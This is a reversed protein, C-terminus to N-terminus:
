ARGRATIDSQILVCACFCIFDTDPAFETQRHQVRAPAAASAHRQRHLDHSEWDLGSASASAGNACCPSFASFTTPWKALMRVRCPGILTRSGSSVRPMWITRVHSHPPQERPEPTARQCPSHSEGASTLPHSAVPLRAQATKHLHTRKLAM